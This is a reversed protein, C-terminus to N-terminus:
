TLVDALVMVFEKPVIEECFEFKTVIEPPVIFPTLPVFALKFTPNAVVEVVAVFALKAVDAPEAVVAVEALEAVVAPYAELAPVTPPYM